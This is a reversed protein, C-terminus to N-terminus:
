PCETHAPSLVIKLDDSIKEIIFRESAYSCINIVILFYTGLFLNNMNLYSLFFYTSKSTYKELNKKDWFKKM